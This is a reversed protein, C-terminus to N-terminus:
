DKRILRHSPIDKKIKVPVEDDERDRVERRSNDVTMTTTTSELMRLASSAEEMTVGALSAARSIKAMAEVLRSTDVKLMINPLKAM